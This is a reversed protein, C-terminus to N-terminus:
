GAGSPSCSAMIKVSGARNKRGGYTPWRPQTPTRMSRRGSQVTTAFSTLCAYPSTAVGRAVRYRAASELLSEAHDDLRPGQRQAPRHSPETADLFLASGRRAPAERVRAPLAQARRPRARAGAQRLSRRARPGQLPRLQSRLHRGVPVQRHGHGARRRLQVSLGYGRRLRWAAADSSLGLGRGDGSPRELRDAAVSRHALHRAARVAAPHWSEPVHVFLRRGRGGRTAARAGGGPGGEHGGGRGGVEGGGGGGEGGV